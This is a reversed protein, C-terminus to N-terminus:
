HMAALHSPSLLKMHTSNIFAAMRFFTQFSTYHDEYKLFLIFQYIRFFAFKKTSRSM